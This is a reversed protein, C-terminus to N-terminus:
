LKPVIRIYKGFLGYIEDETLKPKDLCDKSTYYLMKTLRDNKFMKDTILNMDKEVSLFASKPFAYSVKKM